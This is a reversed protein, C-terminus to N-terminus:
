AFLKLVYVVIYNFNNHIMSKALESSKLNKHFKYEPISQQYSLRIITMIVSHAFIPKNLPVTFNPLKLPSKQAIKAIPHKSKNNRIPM